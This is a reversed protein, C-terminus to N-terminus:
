RGTKGCATRICSWINLCNKQKKEELLKMIDRVAKGNHIKERVAKNRHFPDLQFCTSKDNVKKIWTAGDANLIREDVEDLKYKQAIAAERYEHFEKACGFGAVM